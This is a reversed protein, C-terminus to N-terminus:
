EIYDGGQEIIDWQIGANFYTGSTNDLADPTLNDLLHSNKVLAEKLYQMLAAKLM